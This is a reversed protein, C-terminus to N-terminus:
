GRDVLFLVVAERLFHKAELPIQLIVIAGGVAQCSTMGDGIQVAESKPLRPLKVAVVRMEGISDPCQLSGKQGSM